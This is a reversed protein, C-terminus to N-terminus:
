ITTLSDLRRRLVEGFSKKGAMERLRAEALLFAKSIIENKMKKAAKSKEEEGFRMASKLMYDVRRSAEAEIADCEVKCQAIIAARRAAMEKPLSDYDARSQSFRTRARRLTIVSTLMQKRTRSHRAFFFQQMAPKLFWYLAGALLSFNIVGFFFIKLQHEQM